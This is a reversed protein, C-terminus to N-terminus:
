LCGGKLEVDDEINSLKIRLRGPISNSIGGVYSEGIGLHEEYPSLHKWQVKVQGIACNWPFNERKDLISDWEVQFYGKPEVQIVNWDIVHTADHVYKKWFLSIFSM